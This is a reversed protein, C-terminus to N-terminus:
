KIATWGEVLKKTLTKFIGEPLWDIIEIEAAIVTNIAWKATEAVLVYQSWGSPANPEPLAIIKRQYLYKVFRHPEYTVNPDELSWQIHEVHRHILANRLDWLFKLDQFPQRGRDLRQGKTGLHFADIKSFISAKEEELINLSDHLKILVGDMHITSETHLREECENMFCEFALAVLVISGMADHSGNCSRDYAQKAQVLLNGSHLLYGM